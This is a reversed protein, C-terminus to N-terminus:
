QVQHRSKMFKKRLNKWKNDNKKTWVIKGTVDKKGEFNLWECGFVDKYLM